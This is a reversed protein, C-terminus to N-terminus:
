LVCTYHTSISFNKRRSEVFKDNSEQQRKMIYSILYLIWQRKEKPEIKIISVTINNFDSTQILVITNVYM